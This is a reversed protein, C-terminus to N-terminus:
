RDSGYRGGGTDYPTGHLSAVMTETAPHSTGGALPSMATDLMDLGALIAMFASMSAMGSTYHSHLHIPVKVASKLRRVLQYADLPALLGAM